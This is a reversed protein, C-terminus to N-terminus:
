IRKKQESTLDEAYQLLWQGNIEDYRYYRTGCTPLLHLNGLQQDSAELQSIVQKQFQEYKGGSIIGVQLNSALLRVLLSSIEDTVLSKSVALTDDLDFVIVKRM